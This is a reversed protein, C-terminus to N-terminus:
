YGYLAASDKVYPKVAAIDREYKIEDIRVDNDYEYRMRAEAAIAAETIDRGETIVEFAVEERQPRGIWKMRRNMYSARVRWIHRENVEGYEAQVAEKRREEYGGKYEDREATLAKNADKLAAIQREMTAHDEALKRRYAEDLKAIDADSLSPLTITYDTSEVVLEYHAKIVEESTQSEYGSESVFPIRFSGSPTDM